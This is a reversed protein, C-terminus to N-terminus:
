NRKTKIYKSNLWLKNSPIYSWPKVVRNHARKLIEQTHYLNEQCIIILKRLKVLLKDTSKSKSRSDIDEKYLMWLYYDYNLKFSTHSISTNKTNNYAFKAILLLRAWNNQKFNVFVQLYVEVTRNQRKTQGDIQPYFATSLRQKIGLLYCLLLWFKSTFLLGRNSM